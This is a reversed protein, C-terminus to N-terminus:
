PYKRPESGRRAKQDPKRGCTAPARGWASPLLHYWCIRDVIPGPLGVRDGKKPQAPILSKWEAETLWLYDPNAETYFDFYNPHATAPQKIGPFDKLLTTTRLKEKADHALYRGHVKLILGGPPPEATSRKADIPGRAGLKIAGPRRENEPLKNWAHLAEDIGALNTGHLHAKGLLKGNATVFVVGGSSGSLRMKSDRVFAGDADDVVNLMDADVGM